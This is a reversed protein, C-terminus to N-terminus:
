VLKYLYHRSFPGKLQPYEERRIRHISDSYVGIKESDSLGKELMGGKRVSYKM